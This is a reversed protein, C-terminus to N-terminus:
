QKTDQPKRIVEHKYIVCKTTAKPSEPTIKSSWLTEKSCGIQDPTFREYIASLSGFFYESEGDIPKFFQVKIIKEKM